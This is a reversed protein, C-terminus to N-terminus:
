WSLRYTHPFIKQHLYEVMSNKSQLKEYEFYPIQVVEYGLLRLHRQKIAEKGLLQRLNSTFRKQGDICLAIRKYVDDTQSAPLVYGEEDLKIEVDLTYCYPTLVKSGFYSRDGLLDVLGTKVSNYLHPDVPTELSRGSMLFSKVRYKPLLKPGEYFPCELKVTMYLQTLQALVGREIGMGQEQLQQLFYSSFVKSVFNVPFREVLTCAHLLNLLMRPQFQSFRTHLITEVKGFVQGANPPLYGLKGFAMIQRAVQSTSYDDARYVFSEAIADFVPPSLINRRGFFQMVKTITEPHSTFAVTPVYKEMAEMFYHDSHGFHMLAGLVHTLEEDTFHPVHRVAQKCLNIVLPMAQMQNLTVLAGLVGSVAAPDMRSTVTVAHSHMANLLDRYKGDVGVGGQLLRYVAVLDALSWNSLEQRQIQEMLQELMVSGPGEIALMAQGLTCLEGITMEGRDLRAQSESMLRVMLTSWPDLYLRTCALLASVLGADTLRGSDQELQFCLARITAEELVTPNNLAGGEQELDAVRHLAAAVMTDSVIEVSRLLRFVQRSSSCTELRHLFSQEEIATPRHLQTLCFRPVSDRHIGVSSSSIFAPERVITTLSRTLSDQLLKRCGRIRICRGASTCLCNVCLSQSSTSLPRVSGVPYCRIRFPFRQILKLAM